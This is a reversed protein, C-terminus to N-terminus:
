RLGRKKNVPCTVLAVSHHVRTVAFLLVSTYRFWNRPILDPVLDRNSRYTQHWNQSFPGSPFEKIRWVHWVDAQCTESGTGLRNAFSCLLDKPSKTKLRIKNGVTSWEEFKEKERFLLTFFLFLDSRKLCLGTQNFKSFLPKIEQSGSSWNPIIKTGRAFCYRQWCIVCVM